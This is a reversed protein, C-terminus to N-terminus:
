QYLWGLNLTKHMWTFVPVTFDLRWVGNWGMYTQSSLTAPPPSPQQSFWPEPYQPTYVGAWAFKPDSIGFFEVRDITVAMYLDQAPKNGFAVALWGQPEDFELEIRKTEWLEHQVLKGPVSIRIEPATTGLVPSITVAVKTLM